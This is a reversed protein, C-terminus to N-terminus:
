VGEVVPGGRGEGTSSNENREEEPDEERKEGSGM